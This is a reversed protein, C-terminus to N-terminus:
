QASTKEVYNGDIFGIHVGNADCFDVVDLGTTDVSSALVVGTSTVLHVSDRTLGTRECFQDLKSMKM